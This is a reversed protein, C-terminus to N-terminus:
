NNRITWKSMGYVEISTECGYKLHEEVKDLILENIKQKRFEFESSLVKHIKDYDYYFYNIKKNYEAIIENNFKYFIFDPYEDSLIVELKSFIRDLFMKAGAEFQAARVKDRYEKIDKLEM